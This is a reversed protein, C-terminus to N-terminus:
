GLRSSSVDKGTSLDFLYTRGEFDVAKVADPLLEFGESFIDRGSSSWTILGKNSLRAIELEGHSIIDSSGPIAHVGFCTASDTQTAWVLDLTPLSLCVVHDGVALFIFQPTVIASHAHVGSAGGGAILIASSVLDSDQYVKLGHVSSQPDGLRYVRDYIRPNDASRPDYRFDEPIIEIVLGHAKLRM